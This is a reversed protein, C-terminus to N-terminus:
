SHVVRSRQAVLKRATSFVQSLRGSRLAFFLYTLELNIPILLHQENRVCYFLFVQNFLILPVFLIEWLFHRWTFSVKPFLPAPFLVQYSCAWIFLNVLVIVLVTPGPYPVAVALLKSFNGAQAGPYFWAAPLYAMWTANFLVFLTNKRVTRVKAFDAFYRIKNTVLFLTVVLSAIALGVGLGITDPRKEEPNSFWEAYAILGLAVLYVLELM